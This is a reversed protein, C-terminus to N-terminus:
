LSILYLDFTQYDVSHTPKKMETKDTYIAQWLLRVLVLPGNNSKGNNNKGNQIAKKL